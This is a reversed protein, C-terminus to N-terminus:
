DLSALPTGYALHLAGGNADGGEVGAGGHAENGVFSARTLSSTSFVSRLYVAGGNASRGTGDSSGGRAVNDRFVLDSWTMTTERDHYVAGGAGEGVMAIAENALFRSGLLDFPSEALVAGGLAENGYSGNQQFTSGSITIQASSLSCIAGGRADTASRATNATFTASDVTLTASDVVLVAGGMNACGNTLTLGNLTLDGNGVVQFLRFEGPGDAADCDLASDRGIASAGNKGSSISIKSTVDPLGAWAGRVFSSRSEDAASLVVDAELYIQDAGVGSDVCGGVTVDWNAAEIADGLTCTVGDVLHIDVGFPRSEFSGVDCLPGGGGDGDQPRVVGRQDFDVPTTGDILTCDTAAELAVSTAGLAHTNTPGGNAALSGLVLDM